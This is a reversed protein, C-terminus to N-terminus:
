LNARQIWVKKLKQLVGTIIIVVVVVVDADVGGVVNVGEADVGSRRTFRVRDHLEREFLEECM